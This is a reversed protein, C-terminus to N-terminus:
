VTANSPWTSSSSSRAAPGAAQVASYEASSLSLFLGVVGAARRIEPPSILTYGFGPHELLYLGNLRVLSAYDGPSLYLHQTASEYYSRNQAFLLYNADIVTATPNMPTRHILASRQVIPRQPTAARPHGAASTRSSDTLKKAAYEAEREANSKLPAVMPASAPATPQLAHAIEHTMVETDQLTAARLLVIDRGVTFAMSELTQNARAAAAGTHVRLGSLETGLHHESMTRLSAPLATGTEALARRVSQPLEFAATGMVQGEQDYKNGPQDVTHKAQVSRTCLLRQLAQNGWTAKQFLDDPPIRRHKGREPRFASTSRHSQM